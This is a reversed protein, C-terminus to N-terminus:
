STTNQTIINIEEHTEEQNQLSDVNVPSDDLYIIQNNAKLEYLRKQIIKISSIDFICGLITLLILNYVFFGNNNNLSYVCGLIRVVLQLLLNNIYVTMSYQYENNIAYSGQIHIVMSILGLPTIATYIVALVFSAFTIDRISKYEKWVLRQSISSEAVGTPIANQVLIIEDRETNETSVTTSMPITDDISPNAEPLLTNTM